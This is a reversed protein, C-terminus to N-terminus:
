KGRGCISLYCKWMDQVNSELSNQPTWDFVCQTKKPDACLYPSDGQRKDQLRTRIKVSSIREVVRILDYISYPIGSGANYVGNNSKKWTDCQMCLYAKLHLTALDSIHIYDRVCTGDHTDYNNGNINITSHDKASCLLRPIINSNQLYRMMTTDNENNCGYINFYRFICVDTFSQVSLLKTECMYKYLSYPALKTLNIYENESVASNKESYVAASSSFILRPVNYQCVANIICDTAFVIQSYFLEVETYSREIGLEGACHIVCDIPSLQEFVSLLQASDRVDLNISVRKDEVYNEARYDLNVVRFGHKLFIEVIASGIYGSGGTVIVTKM